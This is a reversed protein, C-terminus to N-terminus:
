IDTLKTSQEWWLATRKIAEDIDIHNEIKLQSSVKETSPVYRSTNEITDTGTIVVEAQPNVNRIVAQALDKISVPDDSGVNYKGGTTGRVAIAWLHCCLDTAYQYSRVSGGGGGGLGSGLFIV